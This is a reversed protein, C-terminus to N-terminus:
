CADDSIKLRRRVHQHHPDGLCRVSLLISATTEDETAEENRLGDRFHYTDENRLEIENDIM